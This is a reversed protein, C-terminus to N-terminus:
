KETLGNRRSAIIIKGLLRALRLAASILPYHEKCAFLLQAIFFNDLL